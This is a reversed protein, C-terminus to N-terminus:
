KIRRGNTFLVQVRLSEIQDSIRIRLSAMDTDLLNVIGISWHRFFIIELKLVITSEESSGGGEMWLREYRNVKRGM